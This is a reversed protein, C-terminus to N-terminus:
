YNRLIVNFSVYKVSAYDSGFVLHVKNSNDVFLQGAYHTASAHAGASRGVVPVRQPTVVRVDAPLAGIIEQSGSSLSVSSDVNLVSFDNRRVISVTDRSVLSANAYSSLDKEFEGLVGYLMRSNDFKATNYTANNNRIFSVAGNNSNLLRTNNSGSFTEVYLTSGNLNAIATAKNSITLTSLDAKSNYLVLGRTGTGEITLSSGMLTSGNAVVADGDGSVVTNSFYVTTGNSVTLKSFEVAGFVIRSRFGNLTLVEDSAYSNKPTITANIGDFRRLAGLASGLSKFPRDISGDSEGSYSSSVYFPMSITASGRLPEANSVCSYGYANFTVVLEGLGSSYVKGGYSPIASLWFSTGLREPLLGETQEAIAVSPMTSLLFNTNGTEDVGHHPLNMIDLKSLGGSEYLRTQAAMGVDGFMGFSTQGYDVIACMSCNNNYDGKTDYYDADAQDSNLFKINLDDVSLLDGTDPKRWEVGASTLRQKVEQETSGVGSPLSGIKPLYVISNENLLGAEIFSSINGYHDLDYHTIVLHNILEVGHRDFSDKILSLSNEHGTDFVVNTGVDTVFFSCSSNLGVDSHAVPTVVFLFRGRKAETVAESALKDTNVSEDALKDTTVSGDKYKETTLSDDPIPSWIDPNNELWNATEDRIDDEFEQVAEISVKAVGDTNTEEDHVWFGEIPKIAM